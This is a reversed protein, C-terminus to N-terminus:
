DSAPYPCVKGSALGHSHLYGDYISKARYVSRRVARLVAYDQSALDDGGHSHRKPHAFKQSVQTQHVDCVMRARGRRAGRRSSVHFLQPHAAQLRAFDHRDSDKEKKPRASHVALHSPLYQASTCHRHADRGFAAADAAASRAFLDDTRCVHNKSGANGPGPRESENRFCFVKQVPVTANTKSEHCVTGRRM